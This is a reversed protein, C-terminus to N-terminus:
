APDHELDVDEIEAGVFEITDTCTTDVSCQTPDVCAFTDTTRSKVSGSVAAGDVTMVITTDVTRTQKNGAPDFQVDVSSGKFKYGDGDAAGGLTVDGVDLYFAEEPGGYLVFTDSARFSSSDSKLNDDLVCDGGYKPSSLAVRYIVYDGPGIGGCGAACAAAVLCLAAAGRIGSVIAKSTMIAGGAM